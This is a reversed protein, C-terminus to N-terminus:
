DALCWFYLWFFAKQTTPLPRGLSFGLSPASILGAASSQALVHKQHLMTQQKTHICSVFHKLKNTKSITSNNYKSNYITSKGFFKYIYIEGFFQTTSTSLTWQHQILNVTWKHQKIIVSNSSLPFCNVTDVQYKGSIKPVQFYYWAM